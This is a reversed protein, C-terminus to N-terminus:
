HKDLITKYFQIHESILQKSDFLKEVRQRGQKGLKNRLDPDKVLKLMAEYLKNLNTTFAVFGLVNGNEEAVFGFGTECDAIVKYLATVFGIGLSSIFGAKIGKVSLAAVEAADLVTIPRIKM